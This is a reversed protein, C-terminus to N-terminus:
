FKFWGPKLVTNIGEWSSKIISGAEVWDKYKRISLLNEFRGAEILDATCEFFDVGYPPKTELGIFYFIPMVGTISYVLDIYFAAQRYYKLHRDLIQRELNKSNTTFKPDFILPLEKNWFFLDLKGKLLIQFEPDYYFAAMEKKCKEYIPGFKLGPSLQYDLLNKKVEKFAEFESSLIINQENGAHKKAFEPYPINRRNKCESPAIILKKFEYPSLLFAHGFKGLKMFSTEEKEHYAHAPSRDFAKLFSNSLAEIGFYESDKLYYFGDDM